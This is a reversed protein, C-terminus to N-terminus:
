RGIHSIITSMVEDIGTRCAPNEALKKKMRIYQQTAAAVNAGGIIEIIDRYLSPTLEKALYVFIKRAERRKNRDERTGGYVIRLDELGYYDCIAEHLDSLENRKLLYRRGTVNESLSTINMRLLVEDLFNSEGMISQAVIREKPYAPLDEIGSEVFEKYRARAELLETGLHDILWETFIWPPEEDECVYAPYSSWFYEEPRIVIGAEVPNLHIYRSLTLLYEESDVCISKYRGAFVHGIWGNRVIYTAYSSGLYHMFESLNNELTQILLHYHNVMVCYAYLRIHYKCVGKSLLELFYGKNDACKFIDDNKNGRSFVHYIAGKYKARLPRM